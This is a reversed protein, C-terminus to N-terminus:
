GDPLRRIVVACLLHGAIVTWRGALVNGGRARVVTFRRVPEFTVTLSKFGIVEGDLPFTAKYSAEKASFIVRDSYPADIMTSASILEDRTAIRLDIGKPLPACPEADIGISVVAGDAAALMGKHAGADKPFGGSPCSAVAAAALMEKHTISGVFGDPWLPEGHRGTLIPTQPADFM